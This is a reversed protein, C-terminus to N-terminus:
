SRRDDARVPPQLRETDAEAGEEAEGSAAPEAPTPQEAVAPPRPDSEGPEPIPKEGEVYAKLDAGELTEVEMLFRALRHLLDKREELIASARAHATTVISSVEEDVVRLTDDSVSPRDAGPFLPRGDTGRFGNQGYSLPGIRESMGLDLVMMRAFETARRLDDSAGSSISGLAIEEGSRGGLLGAIRDELEPKTRLQREELPRTWTSGLSMGRPIITVRHVPDAHELALGVLAHGMEHFAVRKKDEDTMVRSRREPGAVVRDIAEEIEKMGVADKERRAALLAAENMVNALDAGSFGPTRSAIVHLDVIPDLVIGRAHVKLIAERGRLDPHDVVVQRDFRGPRLLAPDLVDPRNTAAMIIVGKSTDFGDMESLLQTLTQEREDHGGFGAGGTMRSKGITDIEDIFILVPAKEKAQQFLERVRAAGLGVFMEVFDSGSMYFFPVGAEGAVARALLTKGCGPPGMLLVGKPIRGGLRQYKRPNALFDVIERLEEVAEELGAVDAFTTKLDKRDYIKVGKKGLSLAGAAGGGAMRRFVFAWILVIFLIPLIWSVLFSLFASPQQGTFDVDNDELLAFLREDNVVPPRVATFPVRQGQDNEFEGEISTESIFVTGRISGSEVHDIFRSYTIEETSGAFVGQLLWLGLLAVVLWGLLPLRRMGSGGGGLDFGPLRGKRDNRDDSM